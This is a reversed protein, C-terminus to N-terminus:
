YVEEKNSRYNKWCLSNNNCLVNPSLRRAVASTVRVSRFTWKLICGFTSLYDIVPFSVFFIVFLFSSLFFILVSFNPFYNTTLLLQSASYALSIIKFISFYKIFNYFQSNQYSAKLISWGTSFLLWHNEFLYSLNSPLFTVSRHALLM